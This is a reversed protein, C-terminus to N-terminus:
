ETAVTYSCVIMLPVSSSDSAVTRYYFERLELFHREEQRSSLRDAYSEALCCIQKPVVVAPLKPRGLSLRVFVRALRDAPYEGGFDYAPILRIFLAAESEAPYLLSGLCYGQKPQTHIRKFKWVLELLMLCFGWDLDPFSEPAKAITM